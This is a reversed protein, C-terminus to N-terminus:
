RVLVSVQESIRQTARVDTVTATLDFSITFTGPTSTVLGIVSQHAISENKKVILGGPFRRSPPAAQLYGVEISGEYKTEGGAGRYYVHVDTFVQEGPRSAPIACDTRPKSQCAFERDPNDGDGYMVIWSIQATGPPATTAEPIRKGCSVAASIAILLVAKSPM